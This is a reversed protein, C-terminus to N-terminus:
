VRHEMVPLRRVRAHRAVVGHSYRGIYEVVNDCTPLLSKAYVVWQTKYLPHLYKKGKDMKGGPLEVFSKEQLSNEFFQTNKNLNFILLIIFLL